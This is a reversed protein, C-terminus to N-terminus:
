EIDLDKKISSTEKKLLDLSDKETKSTDFIFDYRERELWSYIRDVPIFLGMHTIPTGWGVIPVRSPMGAYTGDSLFMAGGSNGFIIQASSMHYPHSQLQMNLRTIIGTSPLPPFLLSCGVAISEDLVFFSGVNEKTPMKAVHKVPEDFRLKLLAMDEDRNYIIIDAEVRMSGVPTSIDMYKFIEVYVIAKKEKKVTKSLISDWEEVIDIASAVVHHNTVIYTSFRNEGMISSYVVTGSGGGSGTTVRVIPYVYKEHGDLSTIVASAPPVLFIALLILVLFLKKM